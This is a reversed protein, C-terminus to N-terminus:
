LMEEQIYRMIKNIFYQFASRSMELFTTSEENPIEGAHWKTDIMNFNVQHFLVLEYQKLKCKIRRPKGVLSCYDCVAFDLCLKVEIKKFRTNRISGHVVLFVFLFGGM